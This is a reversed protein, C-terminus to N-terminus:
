FVEGHFFEEVKEVNIFSGYCASLSIAVAVFLLAILGAYFWRKALNIGNSAQSKTKSDSEIAEAPPFLSSDETGGDVSFGRAVRHPRDLADVDGTLSNYTGIRCLFLDAGTRPLLSCRRYFCEIATRDHDFEGFFVYCDAVSDYISYLNSM